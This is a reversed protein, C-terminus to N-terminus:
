HVKQPQNHGRIERFISLLSEITLEGLKEPIWEFSENHQDGTHSALGKSAAWLAFDMSHFGAGVVAFVVLEKFQGQTMDVTAVKPNGPTIPQVQNSM